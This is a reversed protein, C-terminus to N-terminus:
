LDEQFLMETKQDDCPDELFEQFEVSERLAQAQAEASAEIAEANKGVASVNNEMASTQSNINDTTEAIVPNLERQAQAIASLASDTAQSMELLRDTSPDIGLLTLVDNVEGQTFGTDAFGAGEFASGDAFSTFFGGSNVQEFLQPYDNAFHVFPELELGSLAFQGGGESDGLIRGSTESLESRYGFDNIDFTIGAIVALQAATEAANAVLGGMWQTLNQVSTSVRNFASDSVNAADGLREIAIRGEELTAQAFAESMDMGAEKLEEVRERVAQASIGLTDLRVFSNNLLASNFNDIAGAADQGMAAGLQVAVQTLEAAQDTSSALNTLLLQNAGRMLTLNDVAGNTADRMRSLASAAEDSGGALSTFVRDAAQAERGLDALENVKDAIQWAATVLGATTIIGNLNSISDAANNGRGRMDDLEDNVRGLKPSANDQGDINIQISYTDVM